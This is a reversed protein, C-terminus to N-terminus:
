ALPLTVTTIVIQKNSTVEIDGNMRSLSYKLFPLSFGLGHKKTILSAQTSQKAFSFISKLQSDKLESYNNEIIFKVCDNEKCCSFKIMGEKPTFHYLNHFLAPLIHNSLLSWDGKLKIDEFNKFVQIDRDSFSHNANFNEWTYSLLEKISFVEINLPVTLTSQIDRTRIIIELSRELSDNIIESYDKFTEIDASILKFLAHTAYVQDLVTHCFIHIWEDKIQNFKHVLPYAKQQKLHFTILNKIQVRSLPQQLIGTCHELLPLSQADLLVDEHALYFIPINFDKILEIDKPTFDLIIGDFTNQQHLKRLEEINSSISLKFDKFLDLNVGQDKTLFLLTM